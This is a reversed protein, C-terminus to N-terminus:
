INDKKLSNCKHHALQVNDWSHLGGKSKPIIHDVSPYKEGTVFCGETSYTFDGWDVPEGCIQCRNHDRIALKELTIGHDVIIGYNDASRWKLISSCHKSCTRQRSKQTQFPKGCIVCTKDLVGHDLARGALIAKNLSKCYSSCWYSKFKPLEKGCQRCVKERKGVYTIRKNDRDASQCCERSCYKPARGRSSKREFEKGCYECKM